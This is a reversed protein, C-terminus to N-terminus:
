VARVRQVAGLVEDWSESSGTSAFAVQNDQNSITFLRDDVSRWKLIEFKVEATSCITAMHDVSDDSALRTILTDEHDPIIPDTRFRDLPCVLNDEEITSCDGFFTGLEDEVADQNLQLRHNGYPTVVDVVCEEGLYVVRAEPNDSRILIIFVQASGIALVSQRLKERQEDDKPATAQLSKLTRAGRDVVQAIQRSRIDTETAFGLQTLLLPSPQVSCAAALAVLSEATLEPLSENETM